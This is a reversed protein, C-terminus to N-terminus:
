SLTAVPPVRDERESPEGEDAQAADWAAFAGPTLLFFKVGKAKPHASGFFDSYSEVKECNKCVEHAPEFDTGESPRTGCGSCAEGKWRMFALAADQDDESWSRFESLPIGLPVV